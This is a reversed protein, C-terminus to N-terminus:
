TTQERHRLENPNKSDGWATLFSDRHSAMERVIHQVETNSESLPLAPVLETDFYTHHDVDERRMASVDPFEHWFRKPQWVHLWDPRFMRLGMNIAAVRAPTGGGLSITLHLKRRWDDGWRRVLMRREHEICPRLTEIVFRVNDEYHLIGNGSNVLSM